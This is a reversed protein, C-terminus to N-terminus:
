LAFLCIKKYLLIFNSQFIAKATRIAIIISIKSFLYELSPKREDLLVPYTIDPSPITPVIGTSFIIVIVM